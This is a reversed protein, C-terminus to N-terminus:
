CKGPREKEINQASVSTQKEAQQRFVWFNMLAFTSIPVCVITLIAGLAYNWGLWDSVAAMSLISMGLNVAHIFAFRITQAYLQGNSMFTFRRNGIFNLPVSALYGIASALKPDMGVSGALVVTVAFYVVGSIAGISGFRFLKAPISKSYVLWGILRNAASKSADNM